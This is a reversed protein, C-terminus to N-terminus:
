ITTPYRTAGWDFDILQVSRDNTIIVNPPRLDGFVIDKGHLTEIALTLSGAQAGNLVRPDDGTDVSDRVSLIWMGVLPKFESFHLIPALGKAALIRHGKRSQFNFI